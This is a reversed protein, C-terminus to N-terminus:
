DTAIQSQAFFSLADSLVPFSIAETPRTGLNKVVHLPSAPRSICKYIDSRVPAPKARLGFAMIEALPIFLSGKIRLDQCSKQKNYYLFDSIIPISQGM